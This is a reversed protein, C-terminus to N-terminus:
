SLDIGRAPSREPLAFDGRLSATDAIWDAIFDPTGEVAHELIDRVEAEMSQNHKAARTKLARRTEEPINRITLTAMDVEALLALLPHSERPQARRM